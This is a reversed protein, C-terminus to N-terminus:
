KCTVNRTPIYQNGLYAGGLVGGITAATKGGGHGIQSGIVGGAAGGAVTGVINKDDCSPQAPAAPAAQQNQVKAHQKPQAAPAVNQAAPQMTERTFYSAGLATAAMLVVIGISAGLLKKNVSKM